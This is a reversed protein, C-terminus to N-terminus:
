ICMYWESMNWGEFPWGQPTCSICKLLSTLSILEIMKIIKHKKCRYGYKINTHGHM